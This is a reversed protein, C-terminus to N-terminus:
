VFISNEIQTDNKVISVITESIKKQKLCHGQNTQDSVTKEVVYNPINALLPSHFMGSIIQYVYVGHNLTESELCQLYQNLAAKAVAYPGYGKPPRSTTIAESSVSIVRGDKQKKMDKLTLNVVQQLSRLQVLFNAEFESWDIRNIPQITIPPSPLHIISHFAGCNQIKTAFSQTSNENRFNAQILKIRNSQKSRMLELDSKNTAYQAVVEYGQELLQPILCIGITSSGGLVLVQRTM